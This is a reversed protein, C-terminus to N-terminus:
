IQLPCVPVSLFEPVQCKSIQSFPGGLAPLFPLRKFGISRVASFVLFVDRQLCNWFVPPCVEDSALVPSVQIWYMECSPVGLFCRM